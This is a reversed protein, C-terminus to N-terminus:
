RLCLRRWFLKIGTRDINSYVNMIEIKENSREMYTLLMSRRFTNVLQTGNTGGDLFSLGGFFLFLNHRLLEHGGLCTVIAMSFGLQQNLLHYL